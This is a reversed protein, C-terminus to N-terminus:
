RSRSWWSWSSIRHRAVPCRCATLLTLQILIAALSAAALLAARRV